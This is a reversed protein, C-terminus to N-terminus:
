TTPVVTWSTGDWHVALTYKTLDGSSDYVNYTGVAWADNTAIVSVGALTNYNGYGNTSTGGTGPNPTSFTTWKTGDWHAALTFITTGGAMFTDGVTWIDSPSTASLGHFDDYGNSTTPALKWASGNWTSFGSTIKPAYVDNASAAWANTPSFALVASQYREVPFTPDGVATWASGNWHESLQYAVRQRYGTAWGVAWVDNASSGSVSSLISLTGSAPSSVVQWASGNWHEILNQTGVNGNGLFGVAWVNNSSLATVALLEGSSVHPSAVISWHAGNWHEILPLAASTSSAQSFGVTWVDNASAVAVGKFGYFSSGPAANPVEAWSTGNWHETLGDGLYTSASARGGVAWVDNSAIKAVATFFNFDSAAAAQQPIAIAALAALAFINAVRCIVTKRM